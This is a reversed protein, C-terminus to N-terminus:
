PTVFLASNCTLAPARDVCSRDAVLNVKKQEWDIAVDLLDNLSNGFIHRAETKSKLPDLLCSNFEDM